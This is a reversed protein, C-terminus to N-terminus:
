KDTSGFGGKRVNGSNFDDGDVLLIPMFMAQIIRDGAKVEWDKTGRNVLRVFYHGENDECNYYDGDGVGITNALQIQYKFGVGSRPALMLIEGDQMYAKFGTPVTITEGVKLTFTKTSIVDYGGAKATSRTPLKLDEYALEGDSKEYEDKSVLEFGRIRRKIGIGDKSITTKGDTTEMIVENTEEITLNVKVDIENAKTKCTCRSCENECISVVENNTSELITKNM